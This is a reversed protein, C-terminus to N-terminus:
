LEVMKVILPISLIILSFLVISIILLLYDIWRLYQGEDPDFFAERDPCESTSKIEQQTRDDVPDGSHRTKCLHTKLFEDKAKAKCCSRSRQRHKYGTGNCVISWHTWPGWDCWVYLTKSECKEKVYRVAYEAAEKANGVNHEFGLGTNLQFAYEYSAVVDGTRTRFGCPVSGGYYTRLPPPCKCELVQVGRYTPLGKTGLSPIGVCRTKPESCLGPFPVSCGPGMCKEPHPPPLEMAHRAITLATFYIVFLANSLFCFSYM